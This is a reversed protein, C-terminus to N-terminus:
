EEIIEILKKIHINDEYDDLFTTATEDDEIFENDDNQELFEIYLQNLCNMYVDNIVDSTYYFM